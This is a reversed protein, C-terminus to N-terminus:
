GAMRRSLRREPRPRMVCRAKRRKLARRLPHRRPSKKGEATESKAMGPQAGGSKVNEPVRIQMGDTLQKALNVGEMDATPLAGGCAEIAQGIRDNASLEVVGPRKVAGTVYVTVRAPKEPAEARDLRVAEQPEASLLWGTFGLAGAAILLFIFLTKKFVPVLQVGM